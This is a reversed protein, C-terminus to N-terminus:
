LIHSSATRILGDRHRLLSRVACVEQPPRYSGRLLGVSHLYQLWQCDQVDTKRGPVNKVHRANVLVVDFGYSELRQFVPIWYVGTSEMAISDIDCSKLWKAAAHLDATFTDFHRVPKNDRDGPVAIYIETAGIDIGAANLKIVNLLKVNKTKKKRRKAMAM